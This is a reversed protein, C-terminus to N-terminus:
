EAPRWNRALEDLLMVGFGRAGGPCTPMGSSCRDVAAMDVHVWPLDKPVFYEIFHAGASAGPAPDADGNKIDAIESKIAKAYAPHLPLRWLAEDTADGAAIAAEAHADKRAFVAAYEVGLARVASGTLTAIDVLAFPAHERVTYEIADSLVLRGEADTSRIEITKGSLTRVVDGPRQANGGPMNEALAVAAVAHVPARSKALSLLAGTVAAAGSMDGKMEWMGPNQKLSIGGTDFTIGKGALAIPAGEAGKYTIMLLRSGRPSGQGVGAIAGMGLRRMDAQDLVEITVNPVGRFAARAREVFSEPYIVNAPENVLDRALAVGEALPAHRSQWMAQAAAAGSGVLTMTQAPPNERGSKYRDFRYQGLSAGFAIEAMASPDDVGLIAVPAKEEGMAKAIRGGVARWDPAGDNAAAGVLVVRTAGGGTVLELSQGAKGAFERAAIRREALARDADSLSISAPLQAGTMVIAMAAGAPAESAFGFARPASNGATGPAIGSGAIEQASLAPAALALPAVFALAALKFQNLRM